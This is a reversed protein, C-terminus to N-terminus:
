KMRILTAHERGMSSAATLCSRAAADFLLATEHRSQKTVTKDWYNGKISLYLNITHRYCTCMRLEDITTRGLAPTMQM